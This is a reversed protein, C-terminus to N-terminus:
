VRLLDKCSFDLIHLDITVLYAISKKMLFRGKTKGLYKISFM